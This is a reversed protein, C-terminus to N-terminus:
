RAPRPSWRRGPAATRSRRCDRRRRAPRASGRLPPRRPRAPEFAGARQAHADVLGQQLEDGDAGELRDPVGDLVCEGSGEADGPLRHALRERSQVGLPPAIRPGGRAGEHVLRRLLLGVPEEAHAHEQLGLRGAKGGIIHVPVRRGSGRWPRRAPRCRPAPRAPPGPRGAPASTGCERVGPPGAARGGARSRAGDREDLRHGVPVLPAGGAPHALVRLRIGVLVRSPARARRERSQGTPPFLQHCDM